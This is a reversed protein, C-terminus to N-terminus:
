IKWFGKKIKPKSKITAQCSNENIFQLAAKRQKIITNLCMTFAIEKKEGNDMYYASIFTETYLDIKVYFYFKYDVDFDSYIYRNAKKDIKSIKEQIDFCKIYISNAVIKYFDETKM